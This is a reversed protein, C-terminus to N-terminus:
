HRFMSAMALFFGVAAIALPIFIVCLIIAWHLVLGFNAWKMVLLALIILLWAGFLIKLTM